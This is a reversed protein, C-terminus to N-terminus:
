SCPTEVTEMWVSGPPAPGGASLRDGRRWRGAGAVRLCVADRGPVPGGQRHGRGPRRVRCAPAQRHGCVDEAAGRRRTWGM